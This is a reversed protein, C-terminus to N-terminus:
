EDIPEVTVLTIEEVSLEENLNMYIDYATDMASAPDCAYVEKSWKAAGAHIAVLYKGM